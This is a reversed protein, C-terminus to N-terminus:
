RSGVESATNAYARSTYWLMPALMGAADISGSTVFEPFIFPPASIVLSPKVCCPNVCGIDDIGVAGDLKLYLFSDNSTECPFEWLICAVVDEYL